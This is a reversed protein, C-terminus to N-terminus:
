TTLLRINNGNNAVQALNAAPITSVPPLNAVPILLVPPAPPLIKRRHRQYPQNHKSRFYFTSHDSHQEANHHLVQSHQGHPAAVPVVEVNHLLVVLGQLLGGCDLSAACSNQGLCKYAHAFRLRLCGYFHLACRTGPPSWWLRSQCCLQELRSM